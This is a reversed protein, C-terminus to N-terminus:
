WRSQRTTMSRSCFNVLLHCVRRNASKITYSITMIFYKISWHVSQSSRDETCTCKTRSSRSRPACLRSFEILTMTKLHMLAWCLWKAMPSPHTCVTHMCMRQTEHAVRCTACRVSDIIIIATTTSGCPCLYAHLQLCHSNFIRKKSRDFLLAIKQRSGSSSRSGCWRNVM